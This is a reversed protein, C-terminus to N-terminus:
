QHGAPLPSQGQPRQDRYCATLPICHNVHSHQVYPIQLCISSRPLNSTRPLPSDSNSKKIVIGGQMTVPDIFFLETSGDDMVLTNGIHSIGWGEDEICVFETPNRSTVCIRPVFM